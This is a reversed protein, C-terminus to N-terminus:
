SVLDTFFCGWVASFLSQVRFWAPGSATPCGHHRQVGERSFPVLVWSYPWWDWEPHQSPSALPCLGAELYTIGEKEWFSSCFGM